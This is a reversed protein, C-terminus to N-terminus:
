SEYEMEVGEGDIIEVILNMLEELRDLDQALYLYGILAELGTANKYERVTASKPTTNGKVNRGRMAMQREKENLILLIKSFALSQAKAKNYKTARKHLLNPKVKGQKILMSRIFTDYVSDGVFALALVPVEQELKNKEM